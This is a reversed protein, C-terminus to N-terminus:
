KDFRLTVFRPLFLSWEKTVSDQIISNYQIEITKGLYDEDELERQADALGTGVKSVVQKGEVEGKCLLAGIMGQYKGTGPIVETCVLDCDKVEKVKAWDKSRKFSYRHNPSKLILGEQGEALVSHFMRTVEEPSRVMTVPLFEFSAGLNKCEILCMSIRKEYGLSCKSSTFERLPMADFVNFQLLSEDITNGTRLSSQASNLMGSVTTRDVSLGEKLTVETDLMLMRGTGLRNLVHAASDPLHLKKGNRTRFLVHRNEVTVVVRVGDSKLQAYLPYELKDLPVDKALQVKFVPITGPFVKNVSTASVGCSLHKNCILKVLDGSEKCHRNVDRRAATGVLVRSALRALIARDGLTLSQLSTFSIEEDPFKIGYVLSKDYALKFMELDRPGAEKKLLSLAEAGSVHLLKNIIM